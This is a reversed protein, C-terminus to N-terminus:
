LLMANDLAVRDHASLPPLVVAEIGGAGLRVPLAAGRTRRGMGDDPAVFCVERQLSRGVIGEVVKSAAAALAYPGPPWLMPLRADIRRRAPEDLVRVAAAGGITADDWPLVMHSPPVGLVSLAVDRPSGDIELAVIARAAAVLAGPASGLLRARRIGLERVGREVLERQSAGACLLIAGSATQVLRKLLMLGEEGTWEGGAVRDAIVVISAGAATSIDTSGSVQTAFSEVPAAQAIDLAKGAAVRGSEDILRIADVVGRRALVHTLAGGLEGAGIIAVAQM